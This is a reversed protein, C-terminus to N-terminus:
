LLLLSVATLAASSFFMFIYQILLFAALTDCNGDPAYLSSVVLQNVASPTGSLFMAVFREALADKPIFGSNTMSQVMFIGIIPVLVTKALTVMIMATIPLKSLPRPISMRSFSAGLVILSLPITIDGAFDATDLIFALPPRGDPGAWNPGGVNTADTFLAKLQPVLACPLSVALTVTVPTVLVGLSHILQVSKQWSSVPVQPCVPDAAETPSSSALSVRSNNLSALSPPPANPPPNSTKPLQFSAAGASPRRPRFSNSTSVRSVRRALQVDPDTEHHESCCADPTADFIPVPEDSIGKELASTTVIIKDELFRNPGKEEVKDDSFGTALSSSTTTKGRKLLHRAIRSGIPKEYWPVDKQAEEGQPVGPAYDWALSPAAGLVWFVFHFVLIFMSVYSVGLAPDTDGNFPAQATVTIVVATPLNGWNSMGTAVLIGQWFNRPVYCFERIIAGLVFGIIVYISAVLILPGIAGANETTISTVINSFLLCPLSINMAVQSAGRSASVPFMGRKEVIFGFAITLFMKLLPMVGSYILFGASPM